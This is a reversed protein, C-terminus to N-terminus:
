ACETCNLIGYPHGIFLYLETAGGSSSHSPKYRTGPNGGRALSQEGSQPKVREYQLFLFLNAGIKGGRALPQEGSQPKVKEYQLFLFLNAGIKGGRALSQEGSQPKVRKCKHM